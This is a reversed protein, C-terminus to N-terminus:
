YLLTGKHMFFIVLDSPRCVIYFAVNWGLPWRERLHYLKKVSVVHFHICYLSVSAVINCECGKADSEVKTEEWERCTSRWKEMKGCNPDKCKVNRACSGKCEWSDGSFYLDCHSWRTLYPSGVFQQESVEYYLTYPIRYWWPTVLPPTQYTNM